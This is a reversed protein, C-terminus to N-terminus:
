VLFGHVANGSPFPDNIGNRFLIPILYWMTNRSDYEDKGKLCSLWSSTMVVESLFPIFSSEILM